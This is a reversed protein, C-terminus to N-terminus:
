KLTKDNDKFNKRNRLMVNLQHQQGLPFDM